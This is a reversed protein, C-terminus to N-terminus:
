SFASWNPSNLGCQELLQSTEFLPLGMVGSFSGSLHEIFVAALGQIGYAGAKDNAEGSDIYAAIDAASLTRFTVESIQTACHRNGQHWITVASIVQHTRGSLQNLMQQAHERSQPKGFIVGDLAVTTDATLVPRKPLHGHAQEFLALAMHSKQTAMRETYAQAAETALPTEDIESSLKTVAFGLQTLLQWRRPSGSALYLDM